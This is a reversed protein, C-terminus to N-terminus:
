IRLKSAVYVTIMLLYMYWINWNNNENRRNIFTEIERYQLMQQGSERNGSDNIAEGGLLTNYYRLNRKLCNNNVCEESNLCDGNNSCKKGTYQLKGNFYNVGSLPDGRKNDSLSCNMEGNISEKPIITGACCGNVSNLCVNRNVVPCNIGDVDLKATEGDTCCGYQSNECSIGVLSPCNSGVINTKRTRKDPCMGYNIDNEEISVDVSMFGENVTKSTETEPTKYKVIGNRVCIQNATPIPPNIDGPLTNNEWPMRFMKKSPKAVYQNRRKVLVINKDKYRLNSRITSPNVNYYKCKVKGDTGYYYSIATCNNSKLCWEQCEEPYTFASLLPKESMEELNRLELNDYRNFKKRYLSFQNSPSANNNVVPLGINNSQYIRSKFVNNVCETDGENCEMSLNGNMKLIGVKNDRAMTPVCDPPMCISSPPAKETKRPKAPLIKNNNCGVKYRVSCVNDDTLKCFSDGVNGRKNYNSYYDLMNRPVNSFQNEPAEGKLYTASNEDNYRTNAISNVVNQRSDNYINCTSPGEIYVLSNCDNDNLCASQCEKLSLNKESMVMSANSPTANEPYMNPNQKIFYNGPKCDKRASVDDNADDLKRYSVGGGFVNSDGKVINDSGYLYCKNPPKNVVYYTCNEKSLCSKTCNESTDKKSSIQTGINLNKNEYKTFARLPDSELPFITDYVKDPNLGECKQRNSANDNNSTLGLRNECSVSPISYFNNM